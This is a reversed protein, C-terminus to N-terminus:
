HIMKKTAVLRGDAFLSYTYIGKRLGSSLFTVSGEGKTSIDFRKILMGM